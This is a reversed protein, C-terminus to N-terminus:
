AGQDRMAYERLTRSANQQILDLLDEAKEWWERRREEQLALMGTQFGSHGQMSPVKISITESKQAGIILFNPLM